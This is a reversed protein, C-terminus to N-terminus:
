NILFSILVLHIFSYFCMNAFCRGGGGKEKEKNREGKEREREREKRAKEM